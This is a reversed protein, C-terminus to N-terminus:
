SLLCKSFTSRIHAARGPPLCGLLTNRVTGFAQVGFAHLRAVASVSFFRLWFCGQVCKSAYFLCFYQPNVLGTKLFCHSIMLVGSFQTELHTCRILFSLYFGGPPMYGCFQGCGDSFSNILVVLCLCVMAAAIRSCSRGPPITCIGLWSSRGGSLFRDGAPLRGAAPARSRRFCGEGSQPVASATWRSRGAATGHINGAQVSQAPSLLYFIIVVFLFKSGQRCQPLWARSSYASSIGQWIERTQTCHVLQPARPGMSGTQISEAM